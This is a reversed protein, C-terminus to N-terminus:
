INKLDDETLIVDIINQSNIGIYRYVLKKHTALCCRVVKELVDKNQRVRSIQERKILERDVEEWNIGRDDLTYVYVFSTDTLRTDIWTLWDDIVLPLMLRTALATMGLSAEESSSFHSQALALLIEESSLHIYGTEKSVSGRILVTLNYSQDAIIKLENKIKEKLTAICTAITEKALDEKQNIKDVLMGYSADEKINIEFTVFNGDLEIYKVKGLGTFEIPLEDRLSNIADSVLIDDLKNSSSGKVKKYRFEQANREFASHRYSTSVCKGMIAILIAIFIDLCSFGRKKKKGENMRNQNEKNNSHPNSRMMGQVLIDEKGEPIVQENREQKTNYSNPIPM